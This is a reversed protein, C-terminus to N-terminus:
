PIGSAMVFPNASCEDDNTERLLITRKPKGGPIGYVLGRDEM